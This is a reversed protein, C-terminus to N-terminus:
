GLPFAKPPTKTVKGGLAFNGAPPVFWGFTRNTKEQQLAARYLEFVGGFELKEVFFPAADAAGKSHTVKSPLLRM